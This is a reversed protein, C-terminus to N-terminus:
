MPLLKMSIKQGGRPTLQRQQDADTMPKKKKQIHFCLM